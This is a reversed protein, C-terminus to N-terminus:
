PFLSNMGWQEKNNIIFSHNLNIKWKIPHPSQIHYSTVFNFSPNFEPVQNIVSQCIFSHILNGASKSSDSSFSTNVADLELVCEGWCGYPLSLTYVSCLYSFESRAEKVPEDSDQIVSWININTMYWWICCLSLAIGALPQKQKPLERLYNMSNNVHSSASM